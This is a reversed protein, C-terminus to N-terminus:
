SVGNPCIVIRLISSLNVYNNILTARFIVPSLEPRSQWGEYPGEFHWKLQYVVSYDESVDRVRRFIVPRYRNGGRSTKQIYQQVCQQIRGVRGDLLRSYTLSSEAKQHKQAASWYIVFAYDDQYGALHRRIPFSELLYLQAWSTTQRNPNCQIYSLM